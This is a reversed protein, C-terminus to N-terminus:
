FTPTINKQKMCCKPRIMKTMLSIIAPIISALHMTPFLIQEDELYTAMSDPWHLMPLPVFRLTHEGLSLSDGNKVVQFDFERGFYKVTEGRGQETIIVKAQPASGM